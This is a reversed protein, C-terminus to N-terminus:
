FFDVRAKYTNTKKIVSTFIPGRKIKLAGNLFILSWCLGYKFNKTIQVLWLMYTPRQLM